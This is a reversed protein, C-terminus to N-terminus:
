RNAEDVVRKMHEVWNPIVRLYAAPRQEPEQVYVLDGDATLTFSHGPTDSFRSDQHWVTPSGVLRGSAPDITARYFTGGQEWFVLETPSLWQPESVDRAIQERRDLSPYPSVLVVAAGPTVFTLWREDKSLVGFVGDDVLPEVTVPEDSLRVRVIRNEVWDTAIIDGSRSASFPEPGTYGEGVLLTDPPAMATPSGAIMIWQKGEIDASSALLRDSSLWRPENIHGARHWVDWQGSSLDYRRLEQGNPREVVAALQRGDPSIDYRLFMAPENVLPIPQGGETWSVLRGVDGNAGFAFALTGDASVGFQGIGTYSQRRIGPILTVPRGTELSEPDFPVARLDGDMSMYLLYADDVLRFDAGRLYRASDVEGGQGIRVPRETTRDPELVRAYLLAGGGCLVRSGPLPQPLLCYNVEETEERGSEVDIWRLSNGDRDNLLIRAEAVWRVSTPNHVEAIARVTGGTVPVINLAQRTLFVLTEGDPSVAPATGGETGPIAFSTTDVLSQYRLYSATDSGARYVVFDGQPAVAMALSWDHMVLPADPPLGVDYRGVADASPKVLWVLVAGLAFAAVLRGLARSELRKSSGAAAAASAPVAGADTLAGAFQAATAFRDAPLKELARATAAAVNPPVTKRLEAVPRADDTVIKMVIQQATSGVHPPSGTLMEYLVSGLSYIDARNTINKEATAQEPSMYHPTGLSLGTETMRGGAAASVALAIGFDAVMPRGDHLLINEPKIDRHIVSHRHAYDLADAVDCTIRVAEDISLQTERDLKDRLTEGDIFPMVYYLFGDAEGSDFLPLIHPHQLNATTTIEQVFREAGLVAALEPRLVKVAVKRKHKLDEALYVTAMGGAGLEREITYRDALAATLRDLSDPM